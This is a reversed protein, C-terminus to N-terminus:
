ACSSEATQKAIWRPSVMSSRKVLHEVWEERVVGRLLDTVTRRDSFSLKYSSDHTPM